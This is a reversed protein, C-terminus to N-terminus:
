CVAWLYRASLRGLVSASSSSSATSPMAHSTYQQLHQQKVKHMVVNLHRTSQQLGTASVEIVSGVRVLATFDVQDTWKSESRYKANNCNDRM